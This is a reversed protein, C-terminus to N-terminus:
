LSDAPMTTHERLEVSDHLCLCIYDWVILNTEQRSCKSSTAAGSSLCVVAREGVPLRQADPPLATIM